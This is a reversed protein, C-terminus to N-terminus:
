ELLGYRRLKKYLTVRSIGLEKATKQKNDHNNELAQKIRDYEAEGKIEALTAKSNALDANIVPTEVPNSHELVDTPLDEREIKMGPCLAVASEVVNRLQRINGPWPYHQLVQMAGSSIGTINRRNRSAFERIFKDVLHGIMNVRERLPPMRFSVVNLRYYLDQRFKGAQMQEELKINSAAILRARMPFSKNAGVPEFMREEVAKLLKM